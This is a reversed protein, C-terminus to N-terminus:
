SLHAKNVSFHASELLSAILSVTETSKSEIDWLKQAMRLCTGRYEHVAILGDFLDINDITVKKQKTKTM